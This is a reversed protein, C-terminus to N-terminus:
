DVSGKECVIFRYLIAQEAPSVTKIEKIDFEINSIELLDKTTPTNLFSAGSALVALSGTPYELSMEEKTLNLKVGIFSTETKVEIYGGTMVDFGGQEVRVFTMAQGKKAILRTATNINNTYDAM